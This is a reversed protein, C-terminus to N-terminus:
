TVYDYLSLYFEISALVWAIYSKVSENYVFRLNIVGDVQLRLNERLGSRLVVFLLWIESYEYWLFWFM